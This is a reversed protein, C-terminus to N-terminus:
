APRPSAGAAAEPSGLRAVPPLQRKFASAAVMRDVREVLAPEFGMAAMEDFLRALERNTSM